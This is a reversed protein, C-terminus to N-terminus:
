SLKIRQLGLAVACAIICYHVLSELEVVYLAHISDYHWQCMMHFSCVQTPWGDRAHQLMRKLWAELSGPECYEMVLLVGGTPADLCVGFLAVVNDHRGIADYLMVERRMAEMDISRDSALSSKVAVPAHNFSAKMVQGTAGEGLHIRASFVLQRYKIIDLTTQVYCVNCGVYRRYLAPVCFGSVFIPAAIM